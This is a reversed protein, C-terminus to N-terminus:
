AAERFYIGYNQMLNIADISQQKTLGADKLADYVKFLTGQNHSLEQLQAPVSRPDTRKAEDMWWDAIANACKICIRPGGCRAVNEPKGEPNTGEIYHGHPTYAM